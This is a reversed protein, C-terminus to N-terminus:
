QVLFVNLPVKGRLIKNSGVGEYINLVDVYNQTDFALFKVQISLEQNVRFSVFITQSKIALCPTCLPCSRSFSSALKKFM